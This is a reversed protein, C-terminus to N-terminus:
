VWDVPNNNVPKPKITSDVKKIEPKNIFRNSWVTYTNSQSDHLGKKNGRVFISIAYIFQVVVLVSGVATVIGTRLKELDSLINKSKDTKAFKEILTHNIILIMLTIMIIWVIAFFGERILISKFKHENKFQIEIRLVWM